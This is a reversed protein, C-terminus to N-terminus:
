LGMKRHFDIMDDDDDDEYEEDGYQLIRKVYIELIENSAEAVTLVNKKSIICEEDAAGIIFSFFTLEGDETIKMSMPYILKLADYQPIDMLECIVQEGSHLKVIMIPKIM